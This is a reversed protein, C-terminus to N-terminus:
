LPDVEVRPVLGESSARDYLARIARLGREGFDVTAENVYMGVFRDADARPLGRAFGLAYDLAEERHDLAHRISRRLVDAIRAGLEGLDRRVANGGLPLPLGTEERWWAGLDLVNSLGVDAFTLQGEHILVGADVEGSRVADVIRDFPISVTELPGAALRLVLAATTREGPVAVRLKPLDEKCVPRSSVVVPGYGEGFAGGCRLLRYRDAVFAYAHFSIATEDIAGELARRNLSEIDEVVHEFRLGGTPILNRAIAHHMFADDPDPSHGLNLVRNPVEGSGCDYPM